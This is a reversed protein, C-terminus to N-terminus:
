TESGKRIAVLGLVVVPSVVALINQHVSHTQCPDPTEKGEKRQVSTSWRLAPAERDEGSRLCM